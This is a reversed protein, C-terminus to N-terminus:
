RGGLDSVRESVFDVVAVPPDGRCSGTEAQRNGRVIADKAAYGAQAQEQTGCSPSRRTRPNHHQGAPIRSRVAHAHTVLRRRRPQDAGQPPSRSSRRPSPSTSGPTSTSRRSPPTPASASPGPPAPSPSPTSGTSSAGSTTGPRAPPPRSSAILLLALWCLVVHARIREELRHYVPRLDLIQKM